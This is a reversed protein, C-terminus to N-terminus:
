SSLQTGFFQHKQVTTNSFVRSIGKFQLSIWDTWGLPFWDQNNMPLGSVSASLWISLGGSAFFKSMQFSESAPFSQLHSSFPVVSSSITPHCWWSLPFSDSYVRPTPSLCPPRHATPREQPQLSDSVDLHSFQASSVLHWSRLKKSNNKKINFKLGAKESEEKVRMSARQEEKSEPM